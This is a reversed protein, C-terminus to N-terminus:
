AWHHFSQGRKSLTRWAQDTGRPGWLEKDEKDEIRLVRSKVRIDKTRSMKRSAGSAWLLLSTRQEPIPGWWGSVRGEDPAHCVAREGYFPQSYLPLSTRERLDEGTGTGRTESPPGDDWKIYIVSM